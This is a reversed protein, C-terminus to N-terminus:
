DRGQSPKPRLYAYAGGAVALLAILVILAIWWLNNAGSDDDAGAAAGDGNGSGSGSSAGSGDGNGTDTTATGDDSGGTTATGDGSGGITATGDGSGGTTATGDGSGGTTATGDSSGGGPTSAVATPADLPAEAGGALIYGGACELTSECQRLDAQWFAIITQATARVFAAGDGAVEFSITALLAPDAELQGPDEVGLPAFCNAQAPPPQSSPRSREADLFDCDWGEGLADPGPGDNIDPNANVSRNDSTDGKPASLLGDDYDVELTFGYPAPLEAHDLLCVQVVVHAGVAASVEDDIPDCPGSNNAVNMDLQLKPSGEQAFAPPLGRALAAALVVLCAMAVVRLVM